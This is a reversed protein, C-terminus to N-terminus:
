GSWDTPISFARRYWMSSHFSPDAISSNKSEPCFPAVITRSFRKPPSAADDFEFEWVGNLNMWRDREFQPQPYEPRPIPQAALGATLLPLLAIYSRMQM